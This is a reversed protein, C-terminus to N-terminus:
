RQLAASFIDLADNVTDHDTTLPPFMVISTDEASVVLGSERCATEISSAYDKDHLDIGVALGQIRVEVDETKFDMISFRHRLEDSRESVNGLIEGKHERWYTTTALAAEVSLPHWGFTSYFDLEGDVQKAVDNTALTAGLPAVGSTISKALTMVDPALDYHESAFLKGTRGFGCMVEDAIVLTGYRHCLEVLGSMFASDPITVGLNLITPEMIFAAIDKDHLLTELRSLAAENLPLALKKCGALKADLADGGISRAGFSNGHYAGEISAFKHRGTAVTALQLALEVAETGGVCRFVKALKGPTLEVLQEALEAWPEYLMGPAVYSPGEFARVRAVIEPPNWGLNTVGSGSLFDIFTRGRADRLRSGSAAVVEIDSAPSFRGLVKRDRRALDPFHTGRLLGMGGLPQLLGV